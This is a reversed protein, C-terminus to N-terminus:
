AVDAIKAERRSREGHDQKLVIADAWQMTISLNGAGSPGFPPGYLHDCSVPWWWQWQHHSVCEQRQVRRQLFTVMSLHHPHHRRNAM